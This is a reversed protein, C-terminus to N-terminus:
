GHGLVAALDATSKFGLTGMARKVFYSAVSMSVELEAAIVKLSCGEARLKIAKKERATLAPAVGNEGSPRLLLYRRGDRDYWGVLRLRGNIVAQWVLNAAQGVREHDQESLM